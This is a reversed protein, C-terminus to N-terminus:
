ELSHRGVQFSNDTISMIEDLDDQTLNLIKSATNMAADFGPLTISLSERQKTHERTRNGHEKVDARRRIM